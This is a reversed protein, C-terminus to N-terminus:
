SVHIVPRQASLGWGENNPTPLGNADAYKQWDAFTVEYRGIAFAQDFKISRQPRM